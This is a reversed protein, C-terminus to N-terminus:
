QADAVNELNYCAIVTATITFYEIDGAEMQNLNTFEASTWTITQGSKNGPNGPAHPPATSAATSSVYALGAGLVDTVVVNEIKGFGTNEVILNWTVTQGLYQPIVTPEKRIVIAGPNVQINLVGTSNPATEASDFTVNLSGSVADCDTALNFSVNLVDTYNLIIASCAADIDWILDTGSPTPDSLCFAHGGNINISASGSVYSYGPTLNVMHATVVMSTLPGGSSNTVSITYTNTECQNITSNGGINVDQAITNIFTLVVLLLTLLFYAIFKFLVNQITRKLILKREPFYEKKNM